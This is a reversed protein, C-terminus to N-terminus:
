REEFVKVEGTDYIIAYRNKGSSNRIKYIDRGYGSQAIGTKSLPIMKKVQNSNEPNIELVFSKLANYNGSYVDGGRINGAVFIRKKSGSKSTDQYVDFVPAFQSEKPLPEVVFRGDSSSLFVVSQLNNIEKIQPDGAFQSLISEISAEGYSKHTPFTRMLGPIHRMFDERYHYPYEELEGSRNKAFHTPISEIFGDGTLDGYYIRMPHEENAEFLANLGWNGTFIEPRGDDNIDGISVSNWLGTFKDIGFEETKEVLKHDVFQFIRVPEWDGATILEPSGDNTLDTWFADNIIGMYGALNPSLSETEDTFKGSNELDNILLYHRDSVPYTGIGAGSGVFFDPYGDNNLDESKVVMSNTIIDPLANEMLNFKGEGANLYIRDAPMGESDGGTLSGLALYLDPLGDGNVDALEADNVLIGSNRFNLDMEFPERIFTGSEQQLLIYAPQAGVPGIFLDDLGNGSIDGAASAPGRESLKYLLTPHEAFDNHVPPETKVSPLLEETVWKYLQEEEKQSFESKESEFEGLHITLIQNGEVQQFTEKFLEDGINYSVRLSDLFEYEGLGFHLLPDVSSLYGRHLTHEHKQHTGDPFFLDLVTGLGMSNKEAGNLNIKLWNNRLTETNESSVNRFLGATENTNNVVIDLYGDNNLDAYVAGTSYGPKEFGWEVTRNIFTLDSNNEFIYNPVPVRPIKPLAMSMPMIDKVRGYESWFDKDTIDRPIGNTVFLDQYGSNTFDAFLASWSWDTAEIGSLAAIESFVPLEDPSVKGMNLQLSNKTYQPYSDAFVENVYNRYNNPNAMMKARVNVEPLMDLTFLDLLGDNNIDAFDTGMASYSTHSFMEGIRNTFTGDGNNIWFLDETAYDNAIYIDKQGDSNIDLISVGLGFGGKDIGAKLSVDTYVPHGLDYDWSGEYLKDTNESIQQGMQQFSNTYSVGSNKNAVLVYVDLVGDNNYDFFAAHTSFTSDNLGYAEASEAFRPMGSEDSGLNIYLENKRLDASERGTASLYIDPLGDSNVDALSVGSYWKELSGSTGTLESVDEFRFDGRNLYLKNETENGVFYLDTFGDNNFDAAAVGAGNYIYEFSLMNKEETETVTNQFTIGTVESPLSEFLPAEASNCGSLVVSLLVAVLCFVSRKDKRM